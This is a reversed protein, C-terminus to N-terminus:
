GHAAETAPPQSPAQPQALAADRTQAPTGGISGAGMTIVVDGDRVADLIAQPMAAPVGSSMRPPMPRAARRPEIM